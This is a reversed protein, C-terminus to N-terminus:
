LYLVFYKLEYHLKFNLDMLTLFWIFGQNHDISSLNDCVSWRICVVSQSMLLM